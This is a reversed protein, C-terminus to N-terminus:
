EGGRPFRFTWLYLVKRGTLLHGTISVLVRMKNEDGSEGGSDDEDEDEDEALGALPGRGEDEVLGSAYSRRYFSWGGLDRVPLARMGRIVIERISSAFKSSSSSSSSSELSILRVARTKSVRGELQM